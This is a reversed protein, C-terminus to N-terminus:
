LPGVRFSVVGNCIGYREMTGFQVVSPLRDLLFPLGYTAETNNM